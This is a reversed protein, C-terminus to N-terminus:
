GVRAMESNYFTCGTCSQIWYKELIFRGAVHTTLIIIGEEHFKSGCSAAHCIQYTSLMKCLFLKIEFYDHFMHDSEYCLLPCIVYQPTPQPDWQMQNKLCIQKQKPRSIRICKAKLVSHLHSLLPRGLIFAGLDYYQQRKHVIQYWLVDRCHTNFPVKQM